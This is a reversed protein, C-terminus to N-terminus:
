QRPLFKKHVARLRDYDVHTYLQTTGIDVHGLMEQISRLDAGGALLHTAFSHRFTHPTVGTPSFRTVTRWVDMRTLRNRNNSLFVPGSQDTSKINMRIDRDALYRYIADYTKRGFPVIRERSGKGIVRLFGGRENVDRLRLSCVESARLGCGYLVELIAWDRLSGERHVKDLITEVQVKSCVTPLRHWIKPTELTESLTAKGDWKLYLRIAVVARKISSDAMGQKSLRALHASLLEPGIGLRCEQSTAKLAHLDHRYAVLTNFSLGCEDRLYGCFKEIRDTM